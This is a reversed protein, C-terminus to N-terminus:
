APKRAFILGCAPRRLFYNEVIVVPFYLLTLLGAVLRPIHTAVAPNDYAHTATANPIVSLAFFGACNMISSPHISMDTFGCKTFAHQVGSRSPIGLHRPAECYQSWRNGLLDSQYSDSLPVEAIIWGNPKLMAHIKKLVSRVDLLHEIVWYITVIDFSNPPYSVSDATGTDAEFGLHNRVYEVLEPQIEVGRVKFGAKAFRSLRDGTGCGVDLITGSMIGTNRKITNVEGKHMLRYFALEEIAAVLRKVKSQTEFDPRFSYVLPYLDPIKERKPMPSLHASNCSECKLFSWSGPVYGLRDQIGNLWPLLQAAGCYLCSTPEFWSSANDTKDIM